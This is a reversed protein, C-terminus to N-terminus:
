VGSVRLRKDTMGSKIQPVLGLATQLAFARAQGGVGTGLEGRSAAGGVAATCIGWGAWATIGDNGCCFLLGILARRWEGCRLLM